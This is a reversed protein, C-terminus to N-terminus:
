RVVQEDRLRRMQRVKIPIHVPQAHRRQTRIQEDRVERVTRYGTTLKVWRMMFDRVM